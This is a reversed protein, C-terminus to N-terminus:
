YDDVHNEAGFVAGFDEAFVDGAFKIEVECGDRAVVIAFAIASAACRVMHM